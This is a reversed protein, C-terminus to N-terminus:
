PQNRQIAVVRMKPDGDMPRDGHEGFIHGSGEYYNPEVDIEGVLLYETLGGEYGDVVVPLDSPLGSLLDILQGVNLKTM